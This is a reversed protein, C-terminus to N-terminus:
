VHSSAKSMVWAWISVKPTCGNVEHRNTQSGCWDEQLCMGVAYRKCHGKHQVPAVKEAKRLFFLHTLDWIVLVGKRLNNGKGWDWSICNRLDSRYGDHVVGKSKDFMTESINVRHLLTTGASPGLPIVLYRIDAKMNLSNCGSCQVCHWLYMRERFIINGRLHRCIPNIINLLVFM